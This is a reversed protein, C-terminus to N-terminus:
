SAGFMYVILAEFVQRPIDYPFDSFKLMARLLLGIFLDTLKTKIDKDADSAYVGRVNQVQDVHYQINNDPENGPPRVESSGDGKKRGGRKRGM